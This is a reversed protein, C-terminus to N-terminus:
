SGPRFLGVVPRSQPDDDPTWSSAWFGRVAAEGCQILGALCDLQHALNAFPFARVTIPFDGARVGV